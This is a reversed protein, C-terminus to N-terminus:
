VTSKVVHRLEGEWDKLRVLQHVTQVVHLDLDISAAQRFGGVFGEARDEFLEHDLEGSYGPPYLPEILKWAYEVGGLTSGEHM